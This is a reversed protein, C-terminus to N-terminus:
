PSPLRVILEYAGFAELTRTGRAERDHESTHASSNEAVLNGAIRIGVHGFKGSTKIGKFLIDGIVSGDVPNHILDHRARFALMSEYASPKFYDDYKAGYISQIVQRVFRMCYGSQSEFGQAALAGQAANALITNAM